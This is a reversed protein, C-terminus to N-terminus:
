IKRPLPLSIDPATESGTATISADFKKDKLAKLIDAALKEQDIAFGNEEGAFVFRRKGQRLQRHFRKQGKIGNPRATKRRGWGGRGTRGHEPTYSEAPEGSYIEDAARRGKEAALNTM